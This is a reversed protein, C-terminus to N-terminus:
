ITLHIPSFLHVTTYNQKKANQDTKVFSNLKCSSYKVNIIQSNTIMKSNQIM